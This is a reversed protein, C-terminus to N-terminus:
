YPFYYKTVFSNGVAEYTELIPGNKKLEHKKMFEEIEGYVKIPGLSPSGEFTARVFKQNTIKKSELELKSVDMETSLICGGHSKLRDEDVIEPADLYHGFSVRCSINNEALKKEVEVITDNMKHYSGIHTKYVMYFELPDELKEIKVDRFYGAQKVVFGLYIVLCTSFSLFLIKM